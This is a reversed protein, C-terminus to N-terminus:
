RSFRVKAGKLSGELRYAPLERGDPALFVADAQIGFGSFMTDLDTFDGSGPVLELPTNQADEVTIVGRLSADAEEGGALITGDINADKIHIIAKLDESYIDLFTPDSVFEDGTFTVDAESLETQCSVEEGAQNGCIGSSQWEFVDDSLDKPTDQGAKYQAAGAYIKRKGEREDFRFVIIVREDRISANLLNQLLPGAPRDPVSIGLETVMFGEAETVQEGGGGDGGSGGAGGSGGSGGQGGADAEKAPSDDDCGFAALALCLGLSLWQPVRM